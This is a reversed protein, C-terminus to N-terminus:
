HLSRRTAPGQLAHQVFVVRLFGEIKKLLCIKVASSGGVGYRLVTRKWRAFNSFYDTFDPSYNGCPM